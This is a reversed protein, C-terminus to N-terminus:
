LYRFDVDSIWSDDTSLMPLYTDSNGSRFPVALTQVDSESGSDDVLIPPPVSSSTAAAETAPPQQVVASSPHGLSERVTSLLAPM